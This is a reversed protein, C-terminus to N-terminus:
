TTQADITGTRSDITGSLDDIAVSEIITYTYQLGAPKNAEIADIVPTPNDTAGTAALSGDLPLLYTVDRDWSAAVRSNYRDAIESDTRARNSVRVDDILGDVSALTVARGIRLNAGGFSAQAFSPMATSSAVLAGDVYLRGGAPGWTAALYYWQRAAVTPTVPASLTTWATGDVAPYWFTWRENTNKGLIVGTGVTAGDTGATGNSRNDAFYQAVGPVVYLLNVWGEISGQSPFIVTGPVNLDERDRTGGIQWSTAYSKAEVQIGDIYVTRGVTPASAARVILVGVLDSADITLSMSIRQWQDRKALDADVIVLNTSATFTSDHALRITGGDWATPIWVYASFLHAGAATIAPAVNALRLDDQYTALISRTGQWARTTSSAITNTGSTAWGTTTGDEGGDSQNTTLLNTTAEEVTIAHGTGGLRWVSATANQEIQVGDWYVVEELAPTNTRLQARAFAANIPSTVTSSVRSWATSSPDVTPSSVGSTILSGASDWFGMLVAVNPTTRTIAKAYASLTYVTNPLVRVGATGSPTLASASTGEITPTVALSASGEWAQLTSRAITASSGAWGTTSTEISSQNETLLNHFRGFEYRAAGSVVSTGNQLYATTARTFAGATKTTQSQPTERRLTRVGFHYPSTDREVFYVTKTGILQDAIFARMTAPTGREWGRRQQVILRQSAENLTQSVDVGVFQGLWRIHALPVTDIDMASAWTQGTEPEVLDVLSGLSHAVIADLFHRLHWEVTEDEYTFGDGLNRYLAETLRHIDPSAM